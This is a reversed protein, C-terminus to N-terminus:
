DRARNDNNNDMSFVVRVELCLGQQYDAASMAYKQSPCSQQLEEVEGDLVIRRQRERQLEMMLTTVDHGLQSSSSTAM